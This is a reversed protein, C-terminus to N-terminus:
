ALGNEGSVFIINISGLFLLAPNTHFLLNSVPTPPVGPYRHQVAGRSACITLDPLRFSVRRWLWLPSNIWFIYRNFYSKWERTRRSSWVIERTSFFALILSREKLAIIIGLTQGYKFNGVFVANLLAWFLCLYLFKSTVILYIVNKCCPCLRIGILGDTLLPFLINVKVSSLHKQGREMKFVHLLSHYGHTDEIDLGVLTNQLRGLLFSIRIKISM